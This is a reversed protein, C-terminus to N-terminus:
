APDPLADHSRALAYAAHFANEALDSFDTANLITKLNQM